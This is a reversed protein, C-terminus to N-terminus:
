NEDKEHINEEKSHPFKAPFEMDGPFFVNNALSNLMDKWVYDLSPHHFTGLALVILNARALKQKRQWWDIM